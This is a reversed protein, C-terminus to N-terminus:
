AFIRQKQKITVMDLMDEKQEELFEKRIKM